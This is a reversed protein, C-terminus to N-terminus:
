LQGGFLSKNSLLDSSSIIKKKNRWSFFVDQANENSTGLHPVELSYGCRTKM